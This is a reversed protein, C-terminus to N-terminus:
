QFDSFEIITVPANPDGKFHRTQSILMEMVRQAAARRAAVDETPAPTNDAAASAEEPTTKAAATPASTSVAEAEDASTAVAAPSSAAPAGTLAALQPRGVLYPRGVFGALFGLALGVALTILPNVSLEITDPKTSAEVPEAEETAPESPEIKETAAEVPAEPTFDEAESQSAQSVESVDGDPLDERSEDAHTEPQAYDRDETKMPM